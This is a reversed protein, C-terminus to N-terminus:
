ESDPLTGTVRTETDNLSVDVVVPLDAYESVEDVFAAARVDGADTGSHTSVPHADEHDTAVPAVGIAPPDEGEITFSVYDPTDLTRSLAANLYVTGEKLVRLFSEQETWSNKSHKRLESM